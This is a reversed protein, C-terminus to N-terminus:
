ALERERLAEREEDTLGLEVVMRRWEVRNEALVPWEAASVGAYRLAARMGRGFTFNPAGVPRPHAVWSSLLWRPLRGYEMRSVHGLWALQRKYVYVEIDQLGVRELLAKSTIRHKWTHARGVRCMKRVCARHFTRLRRWLVSTLSWSESGYLLITLVLVKYVVRKAHWTVETSSFVCKRLRGFAQGAKAIRADVDAGDSNVMGMVSGLYCFEFVVPVAAVDGVAIDSFDPGRGDARVLVPPTAKLDVRAYTRLAAAFFGVESKSGAAKGVERVHVQLGFDAFHGVMLPVYLECQERSSYLTACDDAYESSDM